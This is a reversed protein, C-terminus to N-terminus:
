FPEEGFVVGMGGGLVWRVCGSVFVHFCGVVVGGVFGISVWSYFGHCKVCSSHVVGYQIEMADKVCVVFWCDYAECFGFVAM